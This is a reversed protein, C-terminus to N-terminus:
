MFRGELIPQRVAAPWAGCRYGECDVSRGQLIKYDTRHLSAVVVSSPDKTCAHAPAEVAAMLFLSQAAIMALPPM